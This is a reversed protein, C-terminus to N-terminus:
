RQGRVTESLVYQGVGERWSRRGYELFLDNLHFLFSNRDSTINRLDEIKNKVRKYKKENILTSLAKIHAPTTGCCGGVISAGAEILPKMEEAFQIEDMEYLLGGDLTAKPMGANPKVIIPIELKGKLQKVYALMNEPGSSCNFGFADAGLSECVLAATLPDTGYLTRGDKEFSMSVMVPLECCEKIAILAARTEQLSMMTEVVFFDIKTDLLITVQEKYIDILTEFELKGMPQLQQGSRFLM